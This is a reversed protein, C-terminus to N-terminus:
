PAILYDGDRSFGVVRGQRAVELLDDRMRRRWARAQAPDSRRLAEIDEPTRV